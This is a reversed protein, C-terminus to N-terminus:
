RGHRPDGIGVLRFTRDSLAYDPEDKLRWYAVPVSAIAGGTTWMWTTRMLKAVTFPKRRVALSVLYIPPVILSFAQAVKLSTHTLLQDLDRSTTLHPKALSFDAMTNSSIHFAIQQLIDSEITSM